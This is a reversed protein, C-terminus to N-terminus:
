SLFHLGKKYLPLFDKHGYFINDPLDDLDFWKWESCKEPENNKLEGSWESVLFNVHIFHGGDQIGNVLQLFEIKLAVLNTEEFLERKAGTEFEEKYELHGGPLGWQGFGSKKLRKGLLIKNDKILFTNVGLIFKEENM